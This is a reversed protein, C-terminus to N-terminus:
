QKIDDTRDSEVPAASGVPTGEVPEAADIGLGTSYNSLFTRIVQAVEEPKELMPLHGADKVVHFCDEPMELISKVKSVSEVSFTGDSDGTIMMRPIKAATLAQRGKELWESWAEQSSCDNGIVKMAYM